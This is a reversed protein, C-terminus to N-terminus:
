NAYQDLQKLYRPMLLGVLRLTNFTDHATAMVTNMQVALESIRIGIYRHPETVVTSLNVPRSLQLVLLAGCCILVLKM